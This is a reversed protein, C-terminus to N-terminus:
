DLATDLSCVARSLSTATRFKVETVNLEVTFSAAVKEAISTRGLVPDEFGFVADEGFSGDTTAIATKLCNASCLSVKLSCHLRIIEM